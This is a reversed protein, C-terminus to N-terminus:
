EKESVPEAEKKKKGAGFFSKVKGWFRSVGSMFDQKGKSVGVSEILPPKLIQWIYNFTSHYPDRVVTVSPQRSKKNPNNPNNNRVIANAAWTTFKSEVLKGDKEKLLQVTLDNYLMNMDVDAGLSTASTNFKFDSIFGSKVRAPFMPTIIQNLEELNFNTLHASLLFNDNTSDVPLKWNATFYGTGMLKGDADLNIYQQPGTVENTFGTLLGNMDTFFIKGPITGKKTLEEYVVNFNRVDVTDINIKLSLKQLGEYIMPMLNHGVDIKHSKFNQFLVNNIGARKLNLKKNAFFTPYDIGRLEINGVSVDFWDKHQPHHYAFEMKPYAPILKIDNVKFVGGKEFGLEGIQLTYFGKDIPFSLNSTNFQIDDFVFSKQETNVAFGYLALNTHNLKESRISSDKLQKYDLEADVINVQRLEILKAMQGIADYIDTTEREDKQNKIYQQNIQVVPKKVDFRELRFKDGIKWDLGSVFLSDSLFNVYGAPQHLHLNIGSLFLQELDLGKNNSNTIDRLSLYKLNVNTSDKKPYDIYRFDINKINIQGVHEVPIDFLQDEKVAKEEKKKNDSLRKVKVQLSDIDFLRTNFIYDNQYKRYNLGEIRLNPVSVDYYAPISKNQKEPIIRLGKLSFMGGKSSLSAKKIQLRHQRDPLYNDFDEFSIDFGSFDFLDYLSHQKEGNMFFDSVRFNLRNIKYINNNQRDNYTVYADKLNINKIHFYELLSSFIEDQPDNKSDRKDNNKSDYLSSTYEVRPNNIFLQEVEIANKYEMGTIELQKVTGFLYDNRADKNLPELKMEGLKFDGASMDLYLYGINAKQNKSRIIGKIGAANIIFNDSYLLRDQPDVVSDVRFGTATFKFKDMSYVDKKGKSDDTYKFRASDILIQGVVVEKLLPSILGYLSWTTLLSDSINVKVNTTDDHINQANYYEIKSSIINLSRADLYNQANERKFHIGNVEVKKVLANAYSEVIHLSDAVLAEQPRLRIGEILIISDQTSLLINKTNLEFQNNALLVQPHDATFEFNDSYLLKGSTSSNEDLIFGHVRFNIDTLSYTAPNQVDKINYTFSADSLNMEKATLVTIYPSILEYINGLGEREEISDPQNNPSKDLEYINVNTNRIEFLDFHLKTYDFRWTLNVGKFHISGLSLDLYVPPLSDQKELRSFVISDPILTVGEMLLEGSFFDIQLDAFKLNYFGNTEDSIIHGLESKLYKELRYALFWNLLFGAVVLCIIVIVARQLKKKGSIAM